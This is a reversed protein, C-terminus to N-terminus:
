LQPPYYGHRYHLQVPAALKVKVEVKRFGIDTFPALPVYGLIYQSQV